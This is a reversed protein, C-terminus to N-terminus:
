GLALIIFLPAECYFGFVTTHWDVATLIYGLSAGIGGLFAHINLGTDQDDANCTDLLFARLPSDCSDASFDLLTVGVGVLVVGTWMVGAASELDDGLWVGLVSGNLILTIGAFASLSLALIFPRRRGLGSECRDSMLGLMPQLLFGFLPSLFYVYSYVSEAVRLKLLIPVTLAMEISFLMEIGFYVSGMKFLQFTTRKPHKRPSLANAQDKEALLLTYQSEDSTKSTDM